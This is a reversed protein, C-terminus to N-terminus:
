PRGLGSQCRVFSIFFRAGERAQASASSACDTRMCDFVNSLCDIDQWGVSHLAASPGQCPVLLPQPPGAGHELSQLNNNKHVGKKGRRIERCKRMGRNGKHKARPSAEIGRERTKPGAGEKSTENTLVCVSTALRLRSHLMWSSKRRRTERRRAGRRRRRGFREM